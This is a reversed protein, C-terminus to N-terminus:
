KSSKVRWKGRMNIRLNLLVLSATGRGPPTRSAGQTSRKRGQGELAVQAPPCCLQTPVASSVPSLVPKPINQPLLLWDQATAEGLTPSRSGPVIGAFGWLQETSSSQGGARWGEMM